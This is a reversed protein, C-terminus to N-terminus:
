ICRGYQVLELNGVSSATIANALIPQVEVRLLGWEFQVFITGYIIGSATIPNFFGDSNLGFGLHDTGLSPPQGDALDASQSVPKVV